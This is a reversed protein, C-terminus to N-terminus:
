FNIPIGAAFAYDVWTVNDKPDCKKMNRIEEETVGALRVYTKMGLEGYYTATNVSDITYLYSHIYKHDTIWEDIKKFIEEKDTSCVFFGDCHKEFANKEALQVKWGIGSVQIPNDLDYPNVGISPYQVDTVNPRDKLYEAVLENCTRNPDFAYQIRIGGGKDYATYNVQRNLMKITRVMEPSDDPTTLLQMTEDDIVTNDDLALVRKLLEEKTLQKLM